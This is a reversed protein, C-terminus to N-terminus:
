WGNVAKRPVLPEILTMGSPPLGTGTPLRPAMFVFPATTRAVLRVRRYPSPSAATSASRPTVSETVGPSSTATMPGDPEPLDVSMCRSAASSLGVPPWTSIAPLCTADSESLSTVSSRRSCMPKTKWNKLRSGISEASSFTRSGSEIAPTFGSRSKKSSRSFRVPSASRRVCRGDSSEPPWCCRTAIARASTERGVTTKASSGVPLRSEFVPCSM